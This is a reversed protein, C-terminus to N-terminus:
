KALNVYIANGLLLLKGAEDRVNVRLWHHRSDLPTYYFTRVVHDTEAPADSVTPRTEGDIVIEPHAGQLHDMTLHFQARDGAAVYLTEGMTVSQGKGTASWELGRNHSGETDVFVRGSRIGDLIAREALASAYVVTTPVGVVGPDPHHADSGGVATIRMGENLHEQWLHVGSRATEADAGNIVEMAHIQKWPTEQFSWGCGMCAEGSPDNPHNISLLAHLADVRDLIRQLDASQSDRQVRFDIPETTGWVNAHGYFTTIERGSILLMSDFYPQLERMADYQSTTNHDTLAVFDLGRVQAAEVTKYLPCPVTVGRLSTCTGDSHADHVHLDGRYWGAAAQVPTPTFTSSAEEHPGEQEFWIKVEYQAAVGFRIAPVGFLLKWTGPLIPGPLFSPTADSASLTFFTKSGGSWGRLREPDMLGADLVTHQEHGTYTYEVSLRTVHEPVSFPVEKYTEIDARTVTGHLVLDPQSQAQSVGCFLLFLVLLASRRM